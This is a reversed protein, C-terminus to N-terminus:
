SALESFPVCVRGEEALLRVRMRLFDTLSMTESLIMLLDHGNMVFFSPAKGRTIADRAPGSIDNLAIFVGRTFTSKGEIKGRFVLLPAECLAEKEWKSELLYVQDGMQFSGDIQEGVVRFPQRPQLGFMAFLRNLVKELALGAGNRDEQVALQLFEEKLQRLAKARRQHEDEQRKDQTQTQAATIPSADKVLRAVILRCVEDLPENGARYDLMDGMLKGVLANDEKQWFARLRNAKSGSAYDYRSDYIDRGTSDRVFETFSRNTFDLVYGTNMGLLQEFKSKEVFTLNSM